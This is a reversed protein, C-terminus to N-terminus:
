WTYRIGASITQATSRDNFAADYGAFVQIPAGTELIAHVGAVAASRGISPNSMSFVSGPAGIFSATTRAQTNMMEYAWGVQVSPVIAYAENIPFRHDVQVGVLTQVSAISNGAVAVGVPGAGTETLGDQHLSLGSLMLSPEINWGGADLRLGGRMAAGFGNGNVDGNAGVNHASLTRRATGEDFVGGAQADVFLIDHTATAYAQIQVSHGSYDASNPTRISQSNFGVALGIRAGPLPSGDIGAIMGGSSGNYGPTGNSANNLNVFQGAGSVWITTGGPGEANNSGVPTPAGRRAQMENNIASTVMQFTGRNVMLTDSYLIPALQQLATVIQGSTLGYLPALIASQDSTMAAGAAPRFSDLAAAVPAYWTGSAFGAYSSPTVVLDVITPGYLADFRTGAALGAPQTLSAFNGYVGNQASLVQYQQGIPPAYANPGGPLQPALAGGLLATGGVQLADNGGPGIRLALTGASTQVFAGSIVHTTGAGPASIGLWGSNEFRATPGANIAVPGDITGTNVITSGLATAGTRIADGGPSATISGANLLTGYAGNLEVGASGAGTVSISGNNTIVGYSDSRIGSSNAASTQIIGINLVDDGVGGTLAPSNPTNVSLLGNNAIPNYIGPIVASYGHTIGNTDVYIGIAQNEYISNASTLPAGPFAYDIWTESGGAGIHLVSAHVSGDAGGWNAVLNYQGGRGAGTIGEFHTFIAGPHNYTQWSGTGQDYIYGREFGLGPPTYGGAIKNAWVGYATTSIAGPYNNTAYTGTSLTYIFANGTKLGTDYNGVVQDGFTSHAITFLTPTGPTGPYALTTLNAGPPAAGNYVYGLDYPSSADTKFSGVATLIGYQSGFSPGYPSSAIAGPFSAGNATPVPFLAWAGSSQNYLLGGTNGSGNPIVYNGVINNGRIGTLFTANTGYDLTSYSIQSQAPTAAMCAALGAFARMMFQLRPALSLRQSWFRSM